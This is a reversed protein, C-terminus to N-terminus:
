RLRAADLLTGDDGIARLTVSSGAVRVVVHHHAFALCASGPMRLAATFPAGGGGAVVYGLGDQTGREYFHDHGGFVVVVHHARAVPAIAERLDDNGGHGPEIGSSALGHHAAVFLARAGRREAAALDADLWRAQAALDGNSDLMAVHVPGVDVPYYTEGGSSPFLEEFRRAGGSDAEHNGLVPFIPVRALLSYEAAFFDRWEREDSRAVLDGTDVIFDPAEALVAAAGRRHADGDSRHDGWVVFTVPEDGRPATAFAAEDRVAGGLEIRYRYAHAAALGALRAVHHTGAGADFARGDCLVRAPAPASSEFVVTVGDSAPSQLWPGLTVHLGAGDARLGALRPALAAGPPAEAEVALLNGRNRLIGPPLAATAGDVALPAGNLWARFSRAGDVAIAVARFAAADAGVDFRQRLAVTGGGAVAAPTRRAAWNGDSFGPATWGSPPASAVRAEDGASVLHLSPPAGGCSGALAVAVLALLRRM